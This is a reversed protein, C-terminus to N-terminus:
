AEDAGRQGVFYALGFDNTRFTIVSGKPFYFLDGATATVEEGSEDSIIFEGDLIIKM